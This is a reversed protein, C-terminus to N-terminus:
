PQRGGGADMGRGRQALLKASLMQYFQTMSANGNMDGIPNGESIDGADIVLSQPDAATLALMKGALYPRAAWMKMAQPRIPM